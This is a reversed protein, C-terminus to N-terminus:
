FKRLKVYASPSKGKISKFQRNFNSMNNFGSSYAIDSINKNKDEILMKCAYGIRIENLFEFYTKNTIKKFYRCFAAKNMNISEAVNELCISSDNFNNISYEYVKELRGKPHNISKVFGPNAIFEYDKDKEIINLLQFFHTMRSFSDAETIKRMIKLIDANKKANRFIMGRKWNNFLKNLPRFEPISDVINTIMEMPFHLAYAEKVGKEIVDTHNLKPVLMHSLNASFLMLSGEDYSLIKDGVYATGSHKTVYLIEYETHHHWLSYVQPYIKSDIVFSEQHSPKIKNLLISKM